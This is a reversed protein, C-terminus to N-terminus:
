SWNVGWVRGAEKWPPTSSVEEITYMRLLEDGFSTSGKVLGGEYQFHWWEAGGNNSESAFFSTRARIREFGHRRFVETLNIFKGRVMEIKRGRYVYGGLAMEEGEKARAYVVWCRDETIDPVVVYPDKEPDVMGSYVFLDLARGVYHLSTASRNSGVKANLSRKSGSSTLEAGAERCEDLVLMYQEAVDERLQHSSYGEGYKDAPVKVWPLLLEDHGRRLEAWTRSGIIGDDYLARALQFSITAAETKPGFIGDVRLNCLLESENLLAQADRVAQGKSGLKLIM